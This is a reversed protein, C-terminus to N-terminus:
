EAPRRRPGQMGGLLSPGHSGLGLRNVRPRGHRRPRVTAIVRHEHSIRTMASAAISLSACSQSFALMSRAMRLPGRRCCCGCDLRKRTARMTLVLLGSAVSWQAGRAGPPSALRLPPRGRPIRAPGEKAAIIEGASYNGASGGGSLRGSDDAIFVTSIGSGASSRLVGMLLM